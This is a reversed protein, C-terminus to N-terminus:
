KKSANKKNDKKIAKVIKSAIAKEKKPEKKVAEEVEAVQPKIEEVLTAFGRAILDKARADEEVFIDGVSRIFNEHMMDKFAKKVKLKIM